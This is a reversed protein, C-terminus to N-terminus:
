IRGAHRLQYREQLDHSHARGREDPQLLFHEVLEEHTYTVRFRPYDGKM